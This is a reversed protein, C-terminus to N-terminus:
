SSYSLKLKHICRLVEARNKASTMWPPLRSIISLYYTPGDERLNSQIYEELYLLHPLNFAWLVKSCCPTQFYLSYGFYWDFPGGITVFGKQWIDSHAVKVHRRTYDTPSVMEKNFGCNFCVCRIRKKSYANLRYRHTGSEPLVKASQQCRPCRVVFVDAFAHSMINQNKQFRQKMNM